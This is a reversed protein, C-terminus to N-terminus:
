FNYPAIISPPKVADIAAAAIAIMSFAPSFITSFYNTLMGTADCELLLPVARFKRCPAVPSIPRPSYPSKYRIETQGIGSM